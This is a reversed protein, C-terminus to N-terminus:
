PVDSYREALCRLTGRNACGVRRFSQLAVYQAFELRLMGVHLWVCPRRVVGLRDSHTRNKRAGGTKDQLLIPNRPWASGSM